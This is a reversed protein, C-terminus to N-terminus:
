KLIIQKDYFAIYDIDQAQIGGEQLCYHVANTPFDQDHKKRTFREEQAAAVLLGDKILAAASDHYFCSIGLINMTTWILISVQIPWTDTRKNEKNALIDREWCENKETSLGQSINKCYAVYNWRYCSLCDLAALDHQGKWADSRIVAM